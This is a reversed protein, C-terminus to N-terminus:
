PRPPLSLDETPQLGLRRALRLIFRVIITEPERVIRIEDTARPAPAAFSAPVVFLLSLLLSVAPLKKM